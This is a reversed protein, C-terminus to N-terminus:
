SILLLKKKGRKKSIKEIIINYFFLILSYMCGKGNYIEPAMYYSTGCYRHLKMRPKFVKAFGFDCLCVIPDSLDKNLLLINEPKIDRHCVCQVHMYCLASAVQSIIRFAIEEDLKGKNNFLDFLDGGLAREMILFYHDESEYDNVLKLLNPHNFQKMINIENLISSNVNPDVSKEIAKVVYEKASNAEHCKYIMKIESSLRAGITFPGIKGSLSGDEQRTVDCDFFRRFYHYSSM